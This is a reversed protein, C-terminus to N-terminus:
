NNNNHLCDPNPLRMLCLLELSENRTVEIGPPHVRPAPHTALQLVGSSVAFVTLLNSQFSETGLSTEVMFRLPQVYRCTFMGGLRPRAFIIVFTAIAEFRLRFRQQRFFEQHRLRAPKMRFEWHWAQQVNAFIWLPKINITCFKHIKGNRAVLIM